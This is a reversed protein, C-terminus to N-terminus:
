GTASTVNSQGNCDADDDARKTGAVRREDSPSRARATAPGRASQKGGRVNL